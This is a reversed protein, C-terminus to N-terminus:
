REIVDKLTSLGRNIRSTNAGYHELLDCDLYTSICFLRGFLKILLIKHNTM